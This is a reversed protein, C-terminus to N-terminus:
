SSNCCFEELLLMNQLAPLRWVVWRPLVLLVTHPPSLGEVHHPVVRCHQLYFYGSSVCVPFLFAFLSPLKTFTLATVRLLLSRMVEECDERFAPSKWAQTTCRRLLRGVEAWAALERGRGQLEKGERGM